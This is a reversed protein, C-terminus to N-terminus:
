LDFESPRQERLVNCPGQRCFIIIIIISVTLLIVVNARYCCSVKMNPVFGQNIRFRVDDIQQIFAKEQEFTRSAMTEEEEGV